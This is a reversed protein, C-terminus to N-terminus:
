PAEAPPNPTSVVTCSLRGGGLCLILVLVVGVAYGLVVPDFSDEPPLDRSM